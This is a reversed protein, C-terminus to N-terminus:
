NIKGHFPSERDDFRNESGIGLGQTPHVASDEWETNEAVASHELLCGDLDFPGIRYGSSTVVDDIRGVFSIWGDEDPIGWIAGGLRRCHYCLPCGCVFEARRRRSLSRDATSRGSNAILFAAGHGSQVTLACKSRRLM